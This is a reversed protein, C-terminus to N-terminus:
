FKAGDPKPYLMGDSIEDGGFIAQEISQGISKDSTSIDYTTLGLGFLGLSRGLSRFRNKINAEGRPPLRGTRRMIDVDLGNLRALANQTLGEPLGGSHGHKNIFKGERFIGIENGKNYVHFEHGASGGENFFDLSAELEGELTYFRAGTNKRKLYAKGAANYSFQFAATSAGNAFKGGTLKSATGGIVAATTVGLGFGSKAASLQVPTLAKTVFASIFGHGFKGGQAVSLVGGVISHAAIQQAIQGATLSNGGFNVLGPVPPGHLEVAQPANGISQNSFYNGIQQFAFASVGAVTGSRLSSGLDGSYGYNSAFTNVGCTVPNGLPPACSAIQYVSNLWPADLAKAIKGIIFGVVFHGSPDTGNLPNNWMYAYRNLSQTIEPAQVFPDASLFRGVRPDYVRGNMHVLGVGDLGEHGTFGRTTISTDFAIISAHSFSSFDDDLRRAGYADFSMAQIIQGTVDTILHTSGLHDKLLYRDTQTTSTLTEVRSVIVAGGVYRKTEVTGNAKFLKEISGVYHTTMEDSDGLNNVRKFRNRNPGYSLRVSEGGRSILTPKNLIGWTVYHNASSSTMSGNDDYQYTVGGASTLQHNGSFTGDVSTTNTYQYAGINANGDSSTKGDINGLADYGMDLTQQGNQHVTELRHLEDYTYAETINKVGGGAKASADTKSELNGALDWQLTLNQIDQHTNDKAILNTPRGTDPDFSHLVSMEGLHLDTVNGRADMSQIQTYYKSQMGSTAAELMGSVYGAANYEYEVGSYNSGGDFSQFTRGYEDYTTSQVYSETTGSEDIETTM